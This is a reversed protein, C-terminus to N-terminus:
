NENKNEMYEIFDVPNLIKIEKILDRKKIILKDTTIFFDAEAEVSCALHLSDKIGLGLKNYIHANKLIKESETVINVSYDKWELIIGKIDKDPNNDNEFELIYSWVIDIDKKKILDQIFLKAETELYVMKNSQGDYPRNFCCNDLYIKIKKM